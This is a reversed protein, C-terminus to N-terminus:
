LRTSYEPRMAFGWGLTIIQNTSKQIFRSSVWL